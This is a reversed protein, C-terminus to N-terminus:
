PSDTPPAPAPGYTDFYIRAEVPEPPDVPHLRIEYYAPPAALLNAEPNQPRTRLELSFRGNARVRTQLSEPTAWDIPQGDRWLEALLQRNRPLPLRGSVRIVGPRIELNLDQVEILTPTVTEAAALTMAEPAPAPTASPGAAAGAMPKETPVASPLAQDEAAAPEEAAPAQTGAEARTAKEAAPTPSEAPAQQQMSLEATAEETAAPPVPQEAEAKREGEAQEEEVAGETEAAPAAQTTPAPAEQRAIEPAAAPATVMGSQRLLLIGGIAAVCLLVATAAVLGQAWPFQWWRRRAPRLTRVDAERLTFPRPVAMPPLAGLLRVTQRLTVLDGACEACTAVHTEVLAREARTVENDIYASLLDAIQNHIRGNQKAV